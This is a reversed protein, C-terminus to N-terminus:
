NVNEEDSVNDGGLARDEEDSDTNENLAEAGVQQQAAKIRMWTNAPDNEDDDVHTDAWGSRVLFPITFVTFALRRSPDALGLAPRRLCVLPYLALWGSKAVGYEIGPFIRYERRRLKGACALFNVALACDQRNGFDISFIAQVQALAADTDTSSRLLEKSGAISGGADVPITIEVLDYRSREHGRQGYHSTAYISFM